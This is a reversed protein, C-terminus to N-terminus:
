QTDTTSFPPAGLRDLGLVIVCCHDQARTIANYLLRRLHEPSGTASHPWLVIVNPFERNKARPITMVRHGGHPRYGQRSQNRACERLFVTIQGATFRVQGQVRRLRDLRKITRAVFAHAALPALALCMKDFSATEPLAIGALLEDAIQTDQRDWVHPFPGFTAGNKRAWERTQVTDLANRVITNRSDPTLITVPGNREAIENSITWALLPAKAPVELLRFGPGTWTMRNLFRREALVGRIDGSERVTRAADLLGQKSTRMPRTLRYTRGTGELWDM